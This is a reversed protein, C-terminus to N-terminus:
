HILQFEPLMIMAWLLDELGAPEPVNGVVGAALRLEEVTPKRGLTRQYVRVVLHDASGPDDRLLRVVGRRLWDALTEGNTLELAQLTTAATPRSTVVQERNPRGLATMLPDSVMLAARSRGAWTEISTTTRWSEGVNWPGSEPSGLEVAANWTSDDFELKTWGEPEEITWRWSQDTGMRHLRQGPAPSASGTQVSLQALLGAPSTQDSEPEGPKAPANVAEIAIVNTDM